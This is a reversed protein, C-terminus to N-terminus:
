RCVWKAAFFALLTSLIAQLIKGATHYRLSLEGTVAMTQCHVSIGGWAAIAAAMVFGSRGPDLLSIGSVMEVAGIIPPPLHPLLAAMTRFLVVYACINLTSRLASSVSATLAMSLSHNEALLSCPLPPAEPKRPLRCLIMGTLLAAAAHILFLYAGLPTSGLVGAGVFGLLFGPGCNNCFGLLLEAEGRTLSGQEYLESITKAGTPYGGMLGALLPAACIGRLRFLPMMLPACLPRLLDALGLRLLFTIVAFFPFLSPIVTNGCLSIGQRVACSAEGPFILLVATFFLSFLIPVITKM